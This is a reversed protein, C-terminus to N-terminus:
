ALRRTLFEVAPALDIVHGGVFRDLELQADAGAARYISRLHAFAGMADAEIFCKDGDGIQIQCPRPAILGAVDSIDGIARLGFLFQSGCTNGKGRQNVADEITSLYGSIV